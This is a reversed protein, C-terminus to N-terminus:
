NNCSKRATIEPSAKGVNMGPFIPNTPLPSLKDNIESNQSGVKIFVFFNVKLVKPSQSL